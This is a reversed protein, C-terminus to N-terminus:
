KVYEKKFQAYAKPCNHAFAALFDDLDEAFSELSSLNTILRDFLEAEGQSYKGWELLYSNHRGRKRAWEQVIQFTLDKFFHVRELFPASAEIFDKKAQHFNKQLDDKMKLLTSKQEETVNKQTLLEDVRKELRVLQKLTYKKGHVEYKGIREKAGRVPMGYLIDASERRAIMTQAIVEGNIITGDFRKILQMANGELELQDSSSYASPTILLLVACAYKIDM